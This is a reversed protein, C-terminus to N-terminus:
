QNSLVLYSLQLLLFNMLNSLTTLLSLTIYHQTINSSSICIRQNNLVCTQLHACINPLHFFNISNLLILILLLQPFYIDLYVPLCNDHSLHVKLSLTVYLCIMNSSIFPIGLTSFRSNDQHVLHSISTQSVRLYLIFQYKQNFFLLFRIYLM